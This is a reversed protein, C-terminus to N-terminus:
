GQYDLKVREIGQFAEEVMAEVDLKAEAAEIEGPLPRLNIEVRFSLM